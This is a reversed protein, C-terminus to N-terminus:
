AFVGVPEPQPDPLNLRRRIDAQYEPEREILLVDFGEALAAAGTTGTGAFPDLVIGSPPTVLRCLYRMLAIPKVTPHNSGAREEKSAKAAYFFRAASGTDGRPLDSVEMHSLKGYVTRTKSANPNTSTRGQQGPATPFASVVEDSGDHIVNAPFRGLPDGGRPGPTAAFNTAGKETYRRDMSPEGERARGGESPIRCGDINIAGTGYALVTKEVTGALPKRAMIIPEFAPKLATGWGEWIGDLNHSKPFGTGYLWMLTDRIEFGADEIAVAMRHYGKSSGFALLHGGPKLVRLAAAWTEPRFAIDGGDWEKGMFGRSARAYAGDSGFQAPAAGAAGFRKVISAFHYPPDTCVSHVSEAELTAMQEICDGCLLTAEPGFVNM